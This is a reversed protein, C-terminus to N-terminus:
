ENDSVDSLSSDNQVPKVKLHNGAVSVVEINAGASITRATGPEAEGSWFEGNVLVEGSPSLDSSVVGTAGVLSVSAIPSQYLRIRRSKHLKLVIWLMLGGTVAGVTVLLWRSITPWDWPIGPSGFFGVLSSPKVLSEVWLENNANGLDIIITKSESEVTYGDLEHLLSAYDVAILDAIGLEVAELASYATASLVTDELASV